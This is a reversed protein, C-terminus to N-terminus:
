FKKSECKITKGITIIGYNREYIAGPYFVTTNGIKDEGSNEHIHASIAILPKHKEIFERVKRSGVHKGGEVRDLKTGEPPVHTVLIFKGKLEASANELKEWIEEETPEFKTNFPTSAGGFGVMNYENIKKSVAHVNLGYEEFLEVIEYPDHNGPICLVPKDLSMIKQIIIEAIDIQSYGEPINFMDTFDGPCIVLDFEQGRVKEIFKSLIEIEGHIDAIILIKM